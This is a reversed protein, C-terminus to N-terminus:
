EPTPIPAPEITTINIACKPLAHTIMLATSALRHLRYKSPQNISEVSLLTVPVVNRITEQSCATNAFGESVAEVVGKEMLYDTSPDGLNDGLCGMLQPKSPFHFLVEKASRSDLITKETAKEKQKIFAGFGPSADAIVASTKQFGAMANSQDDKYTTSNTAVVKATTQCSAVAERMCARIAHLSPQLGRLETETTNLEACLANITCKTLLQNNQAKNSHAKNSAKTKWAKAVEEAEELILDRDELEDECDYGYHPQAPSPSAEPTLSPALYAIQDQYAYLDFDLPM